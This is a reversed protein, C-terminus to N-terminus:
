LNQGYLTKNDPSNAFTLHISNDTDVTISGDIVGPVTNGTTGSTLMVNFSVIYRGTASDADYDSTECVVSPTYDAFKKTLIETLKRELASALDTRSMEKSSFITRCSIMDQEWIDSTGGPNMIAFRLLAVVQDRVDTLYGETSNLTPTVSIPM